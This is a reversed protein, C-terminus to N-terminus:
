THNIVDFGASTRERELEETKDYQLELTLETPKYRYAAPLPGSHGVSKEGLVIARAGLLLRDSITTKDRPHNRLLVHPM